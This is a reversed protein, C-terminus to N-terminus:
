EPNKFFFLDEIPSALSNNNNTSNNQNNEKFYLAICLIINKIINFSCYYLMYQQRFTPDNIMTKAYLLLFFNGAFFIFFAVAIWFIKYEYLPAQIDYQIKEFFFYILLLLMILSEVIALDAGFVLKSSDIYDYVSFILFFPILIRFIKKAILNQFNYVFYFLLLCLEITLQLRITVFFLPKQQFYYKSLLEFGILASDCILYILFVKLSKSKNNKLFLALFVLPLFNIVYSITLIIDTVNFNLELLHLLCNDVLM